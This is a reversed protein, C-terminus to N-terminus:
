PRNGAARVIRTPFVESLHSYIAPIIVISNDYVITLTVSRKLEADFTARNFELPDKNM